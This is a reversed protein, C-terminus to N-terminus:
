RRWIPVIPSLFLAAGLARIPGSLWHCRVLRRRLRGPLSRLPQRCRAAPRSSAGPCRGSGVDPPTPAEQLPRRRRQARRPAARGSGARLPREAGAASRLGPPTRPAAGAPASTVRAGGTRTLSDWGHSEARDRRRPHPAPLTRPRTARGENPLWGTAPREPAPLSATISGGLM